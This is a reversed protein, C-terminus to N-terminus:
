WHPPRERRLRDDNSAPEERGWGRDGDDASRLATWPDPEAVPVPRPRGFAPDPDADRAAGAGVEAPAGGAASAAPHRSRLVSEDTGVTGSQRVARRPGRRRPVPQEDTTM